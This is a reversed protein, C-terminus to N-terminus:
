DQQGPQGVSADDEGSDTDTDTDTIVGAETCGGGLARTISDKNKLTGVFRPLYTTEGTSALLERRASSGLHNSIIEAQATIARLIECEDNYVAQNYNTDDDIETRDRESFINRIKKLQEDKLFLRTKNEQHLAQNFTSMRESAEVQWLSTAVEHRAAERGALVAKFAKYLTGFSMQSLGSSIADEHEQLQEATFDPQRVRGTVRNAFRLELPSPRPPYPVHRKSPKERLYAARSLSRQSQFSDPQYLLSEKVDPLYPLEEVPSFRCNPSGPPYPSMKPSLLCDSGSLLETAMIHPSEPYDVKKYFELPTLEVCTASSSTTSTFTPSSLRAPSSVPSSSALEM